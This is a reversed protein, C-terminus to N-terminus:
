NTWIATAAYRVRAGAPASGPNGGGWVAGQQYEAFQTSSGFSMGAGEESQVLVDNIWLRCRLPSIRAEYQVKVWEDFPIELGGAVALTRTDGGARSVLTLQPIDTDNQINNAPYIGCWFSSSAENSSDLLMWELLKVENAPLMESTMYLVTSIYVHNRGSSAGWYLFDPSEGTGAVGQWEQNIVSSGSNEDDSEGTLTIPSPATADTIRTVTATGADRDAYGWGSGWSSTFPNYTRLTLGSPLNTDLAWNGEPPPPAGGAIDNLRRVTTRM